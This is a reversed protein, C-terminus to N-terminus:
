ALNPDQASRQDESEKLGKHTTSIIVADLGGAKTIIGYGFAKNSDKAIHGHAQLFAQIYKPNIAIVAKDIDLYNANGSSPNNNGNGWFIKKTFQGLFRTWDQLDM